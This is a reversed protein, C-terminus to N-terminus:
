ERVVLTHTHIETHTDIAHTRTDTHIETHTDIAHTRAHTHTHMSLTHALLWIGAPPGHPVTLTLPGHHTRPTQNTTLQDPADM